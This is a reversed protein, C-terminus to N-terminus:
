KKRWIAYFGFDKNNTISIENDFVEYGLNKFFQKSYYLHPPYPNMGREKRYKERQEKKAEDPIDCIIVCDAYHKMHLFLHSAYVLDPFYQVTGHCIIYNYHRKMVIDNGVAFIGDPNNKTARNIMSLSIDIGYKKCALHKLIIGSGCGYDLVKDSYHINLKTTLYNVLKIVNEEGQKNYGGNVEIDDKNSSAVREWIPQWNDVIKDKIMTSSIGEMHQIYYMKGNISEMYKVLEKFRKAEKHQTSLCFIDAKVKKAHNIYDVDNYIYVEDVCGLALVTKARIDESLIPREGKMALVGKDGQIGAILYDGQAKAKQLYQIHGIHLMDFVGPAYVRIKKM